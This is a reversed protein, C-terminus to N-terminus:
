SGKLFNRKTIEIIIHFKERYGLCKDTSETRTQDFKRTAFQCYIKSANLSLSGM